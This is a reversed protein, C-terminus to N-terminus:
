EGTRHTSKNVYVRYKNVYVETKASFVPQIHIQRLITPPLNVNVAPVLGQWVSILIVRFTAPIPKSTPAVMTDDAENPNSFYLQRHNITKPVDLRRGRRSLRGAKNM